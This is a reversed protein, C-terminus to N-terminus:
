FLTHITIVIIISLIFLILTARSCEEKNMRYKTIYVTNIVAPPMLSEVLVAGKVAGQLSGLAIMVGGILPSVLFCMLGTFFIEKTYPKLSLTTPLTLGLLILGLYITGTGIIELPVPPVEFGIFIFVIALLFALFPPFRLVNKIPNVSRVAKEQNMFFSAIMPALTIHMISVTTTYVIAASLVGYLSLILPFPLNVSNHFSSTFVVSGKTGRDLDRSHAYLFSLVLCTATISVAAFTVHVMDLMQEPRM